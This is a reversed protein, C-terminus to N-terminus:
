EEGVQGNNESVNEFWLSYIYRIISLVFVFLGIVIIIQPIWIPVQIISLDKTKLKWSNFFMDYSSKAVYIFFIVCFLMLITELIKQNKDSLKSTLIDVRVHENKKMTYSITLFATAIFMYITVPEVWHASIYFYRAIVGWSVFFCTFFICLSAFIGSLDIIYDITKIVKNM